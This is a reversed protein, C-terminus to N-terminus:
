GGPLRRNQRDGPGSGAPRCGAIIKPIVLWLPAYWVVIGASLLAIELWYRIPQSTAHATLNEGGSRASGRWGGSDGVTYGISGEQLSCVLIYPGYVAVGLWVLLGAVLAILCAGTQLITKLPRAPPPASEALTVIRPSDSSDAAASREGPEPEFWGIARATLDRDALLQKVQRADRATAVGTFWRGAPDRATFRYHQTM